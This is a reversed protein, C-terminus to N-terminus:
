QLGRLAEIVAQQILPSALNGLHGGNPFVKIRAPDFTSELWSVDQPTLLFDNRNMLVRAKPQARLSNRYTQLNGERTFDAPGVGRQHFYPMVFRKFYDQYSIGMIERYCPERRWESIPTRLVGMSHKSQSAYIVDRLTLRFALGILFQSEIKQFPVDATSTSPMTAMKQAKHIANNMLGQRSASPWELPANYFRDLSITGRQLQVPADIAVYRDFRLLGPAEHKERAALYLTQFAGMSFGVLARKGYKGPHKQELLGDIATLAVLLDRCDIPPYAPLAATAACEMFEPHFTSTTTVVSFGKGYLCEALSLATLSLRHSGLGPAIYVLPSTARQLWCNFKMSRGTSPLRVSMEQGHLPFDPNKCAIMAVGLTQLSAMDKGGKVQWDPQKDKSVYTWAYKMDAYPDANARAFRVAEDTVYTLRNYAALSSAYNYPYLYTWPDSAKDAALGLAHCEDSPGLLPMMIYANPNWGWHNFTQGFDADSKPIRWRSAVDFLGGVGATTNCLFRLSEDGAGSWRGQLAHNILRGPYAMNRAFHTISRRASSPVVARYVRGSPQVVGILLNQNFEWLSRNVPEFPDNIFEPLVAQSHQVAATHGPTSAPSPGRPSCAALIGIM